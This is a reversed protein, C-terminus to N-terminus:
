GRSNRFGGQEEGIAAETVKRVRNILVKGNVKGVVSMLSISRYSNCECKDGKGKNCPMMCMDRFDRPTAIKLVYDNDERVLFMSDGEVLEPPIGDLGPAKGVGLEKLAAEIEGREILLDNLQQLLPM